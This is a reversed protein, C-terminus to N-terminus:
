THVLHEIIQAIIGDFDYCISANTGALHLLVSIIAKFYYSILHAFLNWLM